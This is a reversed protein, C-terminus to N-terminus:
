QVSVDAREMGIFTKENNRLLLKKFNEYKIGSLKRLREHNLLSVIICLM